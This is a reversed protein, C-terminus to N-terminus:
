VSKNKNASKNTRITKNTKIPGNATLLALRILGTGNKNANLRSSDLGCIKVLMLILSLNRILIWIFILIYIGFSKM